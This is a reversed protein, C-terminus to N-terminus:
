GIAVGMMLRRGWVEMADCVCENINIFLTSVVRGTRQAANGIYKAEDTLTAATGVIV